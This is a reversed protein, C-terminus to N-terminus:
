KAPQNKPNEPNAAWQSCVGALDCYKSCRMSSGPRHIVHMAPPKKKAKAISDTIWQEAEEETRLVRKARGGALAEVAFTEKKAWREEDTCLPLTVEAQRHLKIRTRIFNETAETTWLPVDFAEVPFHPPQFDCTVKSYDRFFAVSQLSTIPWDADRGSADIGGEILWRCINLQAVYDWKVGNEYTKWRTGKWDSLTKTSHQYLDMQGSIRVGDIPRFFRREVEFDSDEGLVELVSHIASGLVSHSSDAVDVDVEPTLLRLAHIRPPGCLDTTSFDVGPGKSYKAEQLEVARAYAHPLNQPNTYNIKM